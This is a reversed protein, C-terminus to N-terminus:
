FAGKIFQNFSPFHQLDLINLSISFKGLANGGGGLINCLSFKVLTRKIRKIPMYYKKKKM